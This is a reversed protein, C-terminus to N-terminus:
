NIIYDRVFGSNTAADGAAPANYPARLEHAALDENTAPDVVDFLQTNVHPYTEGPDPQPQQMITDTAGTYVHAPIRTGDPATNAYDGQAIGDFEAATKEEASYLRGLINDFSRNEFMVVVVHDFDPEAREPVPTFEPPHARGGSAGGSGAIGAGVAGGVALGAVGIGVGIGTRRLFDRRSTDSDAM